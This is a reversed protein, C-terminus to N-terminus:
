NDECRILGKFRDLIVELMEDGTLLKNERILERIYKDINKYSIYGTGGYYTLLVEDRLFKVSGKRDHSFTIETPATDVCTSKRLQQKIAKSPTPANFAYFNFLDQRNYYALIFQKIDHSPIYDGSSDGGLDEETDDKPSSDEEAMITKQENEASSAPKVVPENDVPSSFATPLIPPANSTYEDISIQGPLPSTVTQQKEFLSFLIESTLPNSEAAKRINKAQEISVKIDNTLMYSFLSQQNKHSIYSLEVGAIFSLEKSDVLKLLPTILETLRIYRQIKKRNTNKQEAIKSLSPANKGVRKLLDSQQKYAQALESHSYENRETNTTLLILSAIDKTVEKVICPVTALGALKAAEVRHRGAIIDYRYNKKKRILIPELVGVEAVSEAIQIAWNQRFKFPQDKIEDLLDINVEIIKTQNNEESNGGLLEGFSEEPTPISQKGLPWIAM